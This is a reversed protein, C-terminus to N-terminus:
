PAFLWIQVTGSTRSLSYARQGADILGQVQKGLADEGKRFVVKTGSRKEESSAAPLEGFNSSAITTPSGADRLKAQYAKAEALRKPHHIVDVRSLSTQGTVLPAAAPARAVPPAVASPQHTNRIENRIASQEALSAKPLRTLQDRLCAGLVHKKHLVEEEEVKDSQDQSPQPAASGNAVPQGNTTVSVTIEKDGCMHALQDDVLDVAHMLTSDTLDTEYFTAGLFM